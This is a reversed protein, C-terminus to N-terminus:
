KLANRANLLSFRIRRAIFHFSSSCSDNFDVIIELEYSDTSNEFMFEINRGYIVVSYMFHFIRISEIPM